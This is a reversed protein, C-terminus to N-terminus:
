RGRGTGYTSRGPVGGRRVPVRGAFRLGRAVREQLDEEILVMRSAFDGGSDDVAPQTVRVSGQQDLLLSAGDQELELTQYRITTYKRRDEDSSLM